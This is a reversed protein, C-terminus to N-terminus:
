IFGKSNTAQLLWDDLKMAVDVNSSLAITVRNVVDAFRHDRLVEDGFENVLITEVFFQRAVRRNLKDGTKAQLLRERVKDPLPVHAKKSPASKQRQSQDAASSRDSKSAEQVRQSLSTVLRSVDDISAM